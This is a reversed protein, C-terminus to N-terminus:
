KGKFVFKVADAVIVQDETEGKDWLFVKVVGAKFTYEGLSFWCDNRFLSELSRTDERVVYEKEGQKITYTQPYTLRKEQQMSREQWKPHGYEVSCGRACAFVEYKGELTLPVSWSVYSDGKGALKYVLSQVPTGYSSEWLCYRWFGGNPDNMKEDYKKERKRRFWDTLVFSRREKVRFGADENDVVIEHPNGDGTFYERGMLRVTDALPEADPFNREMFRRPMNNSIGLELHPCFDDYEWVISKGEGAKVEVNVAKYRGGYHSLDHINENNDDVLAVVGDVESDNYIELCIQYRHSTSQLKEYVNAWSVFDEKSIERRGMVRVEFKKVLYTPIGKQEFWSSFVRKWDVGYREQFVRWMDKFNLKQFSCARMCSDVCAFFEGPPVGESHFLKILEDAKMSVIVERVGVSLAPDRLAEAFSHNGLYKLAEDSFYKDNVSKGARDGEVRIINNMLVNVSPYEESYVHHLREHFLVSLAYDNRCSKKMEFWELSFPSMEDVAWGGGFTLNENLLLIELFNRVVDNELRGEAVKKGELFEIGDRRMVENMQEFKRIKAKKWAVNECYGVGREPFFVMEPQVYESGGRHMRFYSVFSIPAEVLALREYPYSRRMKEELKGKLVRISEPLLAGIRSLGKLIDVNEPHIYLEYRVSDVDVGWSVFNGACLSMGQLPCKSEFMVRGKDYKRKGPAIVKRKGYGTVTLRYTAFSVGADYPSKPNVPIETVPYWLCEPLLLTYDEGLFANRKGFRCMWFRKRGVAEYEEDEVDLYCIRDDIGGSYAIEIELSDFASVERKVRVVQREREFHLERKGERVAEVKLAPNLYFIMEPLFVGTENKLIVRSCCVMREGAFKVDIDQSVRELCAEGAYRAYVERYDERVLRDERYNWYFSFGCLVGVALLVAPCLRVDKRNPLRGFLVVSWELFGLGILFWCVRQVFYLGLGVYGTVNSFTNPLYVGLPDFVGGAVGDSWFLNLCVSALLFLLGLFYFRVRVFVWFALGLYFVLAPITLTFLYFCYYVVVWSASKCFSGALMGMGCALFAVFLSSALFGGFYGWLLERNSEPRCLIAVESDLKLKGVFFNGVCFFIFFVQLVVFLMQNEQPFFSPMLTWGAFPKGQMDGHLMVQTVFVTVCTVVVCVRWLNERIIVRFTNSAIHRVTNM